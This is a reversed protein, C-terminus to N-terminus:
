AVGGYARAGGFFPGPAVSVILVEVDVLAFLDRAQVPRANRVRFTVPVTDAEIDQM